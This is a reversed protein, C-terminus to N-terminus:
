LKIKQKIGILSWWSATHTRSWRTWKNGLDSKSGPTHFWRNRGELCILWTASASLRLALHCLPPPLRPLPSTPGRVSEDWLRCPWLWESSFLSLDPSSPCFLLSWTYLPASSVGLAWQSVSSFHQCQYLYYVISIISKSDTVKEKLLNRYFLSSATPFFLVFEGVKFKGHVLVERKDERLQERWEETSRRRSSCHLHRHTRGGTSPLDGLPWIVTPPQLAWERVAPTWHFLPSLLRRDSPASSRTHGPSTWLGALGSSSVAPSVCSHARLLYKDNM